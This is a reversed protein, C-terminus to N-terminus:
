LPRNGTLHPGLSPWVLGKGLNTGLRTSLIRMQLKEKRIKARADYNDLCRNSCGNFLLMRDDFLHFKTKLNIKNLLFLLFCSLHFITYKMIKLCFTMQKWNSIRKVFITFMTVNKCSFVNQSKEACFTKKDFWFDCNGLLFQNIKIKITRDNKKIIFNCFGINLVFFIEPFLKLLIKGLLLSKAGIM